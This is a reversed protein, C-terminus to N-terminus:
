LEEPNSALQRLLDIVENRGLIRSHVAYLEVAADLGAIGDKRTTVIGPFRRELWEVLELSVSPREDRDDHEDAQPQRPTTRPM